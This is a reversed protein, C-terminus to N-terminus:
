GPLAAEHWTERIADPIGDFHAITGAVAVASAWDALVAAAERDLTQLASVDVTIDPRRLPASRLVTALRNADEATVHSTLVIRDADFFLRFAEPRGSSRLLPHVCSLEDLVSPDIIDSRYACMASMGAGGAQAADALLEWRLQTARRDPAAAVTTVDALVRLGTYGDARARATAAAYFDLQQQPTRPDAQGYAEAVTYLLLAQGSAGNISSHAPDLGMLAARAPEDAVCLVRKALMFGDAVYRLAVDIFEDPDDYPWCLHDGPGLGVPMWVSGNARVDLVM